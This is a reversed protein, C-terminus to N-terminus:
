IFRRVVNSAPAYNLMTKDSARMEARRFEVLADMEDQETLQAITQSTMYKAQFVRAARVTVYNRVHQPLDEFPLFWTVDCYVPQTFTFTQSVRDYLKGARPTVDDTRYTGDIQLANSPLIIQGDLDPTLCYREDTNCHSGKTQVQRSTRHLEALALGAYSVGEQPVESVPMEGITSLLDNVAELESTPFFDAM